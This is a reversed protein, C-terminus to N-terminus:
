IPTKKKSNNHKKAFFFHLVILRLSAFIWTPVKIEPNVEQLITLVSRRQMRNAIGMEVLDADAIGQLILRGTVGTLSFTKVISPDVGKNCLFTCVDAM